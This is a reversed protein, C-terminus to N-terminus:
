LLIEGKDKSSYYSGKKSAAELIKSLLSISAGSCVLGFWELHSKPRLGHTLTNDFVYYVYRLTRAKVKHRKGRYKGVDEVVPSLM